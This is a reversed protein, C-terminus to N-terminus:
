VFGGGIAKRYAQIRNFCALSDAATLGSSLAFFSIRDATFLQAGAPNNNVCHVYVALNTMTGGYANADTAGLQAHASGSTAYYIRHDTASVRSACYYGAGPSVGTILSTPPAVAGNYSYYNHDTYQPATIFGNADYAGGGFGTATVTYHYLIMATSLTSPFGTGPNFGTNMYKGAGDGALGNIDLDAVSFAGFSSWPSFAPGQLLPTTCATFNNPVYTNVVLMKQWTGDIIMGNVLDTVCLITYTPPQSGPGCRGLWDNVIAAALATAVDNLNYRRHRALQHVQTM